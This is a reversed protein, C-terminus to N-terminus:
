KSLKDVPLDHFEDEDSVAESVVIDIIDEISRKDDIEVRKDIDKVWLKVFDGYNQDAWLALRVPGGCVEFAYTMAQRKSESSTNLGMIPVDPQALDLLQRLQEARAANVRVMKKDHESLVPQTPPPTPLKDTM